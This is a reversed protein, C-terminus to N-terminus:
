WLIKRAASVVCCGCAVIGVLLAIRTIPDKIDGYWRIMSVIMWVLCAVALLWVVTEAM